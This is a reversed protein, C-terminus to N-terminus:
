NESALSYALFACITSGIVCTSIALASAHALVAYTGTLFAVMMALVAFKICSAALMYFKILAQKGEYHAAIFYIFIAMTSFALGLSDSIIFARFAAERTLIAMGQKLGESQNYGGPLTFGATFTVTAILAAVILHTDAVKKLRAIASKEDDPARIQVIEPARMQVVEPARMQGEPARVEDIDEGTLRQLSLTAGAEKLVEAIQKAAVASKGNYTVMDLPTLRDNNLAQKDAMQHHILEPVLCDSAALVHLPTNGDVDKQVLLNNIVQCSRVIFEIMKKKEHEVAIHLVNQGRVNVMEGSDPCSSMITKVVELHGRSAAMHLPTNKDDKDAVYASSRDKYLLQSVRRTYGNCAAYHLPTQGNADKEKILAPNSELLTATCGKSNSIIAGHLATRGDPGGYAVSKCSNVISSLLYNDGREAALYVPTEGAANAPHMFEPDLQVLTRVTSPHNYRVAEHLPTDQDENVMRLMDRGGEAAAGRGEIDRDVPACSFDVLAKVCRDNGARAALHLATEHRANLCGLLSPHMSLIERACALNGFQCALHLVTNNTPTAQSALKDKNKKLTAIDGSIAAQWITSDM